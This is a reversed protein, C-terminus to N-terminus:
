KQPRREAIRKDRICVEEECVPESNFGTTFLSEEPWVGEIEKGCFACNTTLIVPDSAIREM